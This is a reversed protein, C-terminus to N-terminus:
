FQMTASLYLTVFDRVWERWDVYAFQELSDKIDCDDLRLPIFRRQQNIPDRFLRWHRNTKTHRELTLWESASKNGLSHESMVLVPNFM